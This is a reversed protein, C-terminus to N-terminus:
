DLVLSEKIQQLLYISKIQHKNKKIFSRDSAIDDNYNLFSPAHLQISLRLWRLEADDNDMEIAKELNNKGKKFTSLKSFPSFTHNAWITQYAGLYGLHLASKPNKGLDSIHRQCIVKDKVALPYHRRITEWDQAYLVTGILSSLLLTIYKM